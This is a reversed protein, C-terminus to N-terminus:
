ICDHVIGRAEDYNVCRIAKEHTGVDLNKGTKLDCQVLNKGLGGTYAIEGTADYVCDLLASDIQFKM